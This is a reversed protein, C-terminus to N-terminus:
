KESAVMNIFKAPYDHICISGFVGTISTCTLNENSTPNESGPDRHNCFQLM